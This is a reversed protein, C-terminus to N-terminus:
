DIKYMNQIKFSVIHYKAKEIHYKEWDVDITPLTRTLAGIWIQYLSQHFDVWMYSLSIPSSPLNKKDKLMVPM